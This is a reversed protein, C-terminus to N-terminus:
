PSLHWTRIRQVWGEMSSEKWVRCIVLPKQLALLFVSWCWWHQRNLLLPRRACVGAGGAVEERNDHLLVPVEQRHDSPTFLPSLPNPSYSFYNKWSWSKKGKREGDPIKSTGNMFFGAKQGKVCGRLGWSMGWPDQFLQKFILLNATIFYTENILHHHETAWDHWVRQVRHVTAQWAGGKM